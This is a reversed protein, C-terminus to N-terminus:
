RADRPPRRLRGPRRKLLTVDPDVVTRGSIKVTRQIRVQTQTLLPAFHQLLRDIVEPHANGRPTMDVIEGDILEVKDDEDIIGQQIMAMYDDCTFRHPTLQGPHSSSAWRSPQLTPNDAPSAM